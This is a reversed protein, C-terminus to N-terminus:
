GIIGAQRNLPVAAKFAAAVMAITSNGSVGFQASESSADALEYGAQSKNHATAVTEGTTITPSGSGKAGVYVCLDGNTLGTLTTTLFDNSSNSASDTDRAQGVKLFGGTIFLVAQMRVVSPGTVSLTLAGINPALLYGIWARSGSSAIEVLETLSVSDFTVDTIDGTEAGIAVVIANDGAITTFSNGDGAASTITRVGINPAM